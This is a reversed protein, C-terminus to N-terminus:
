RLAICFGRQATLTPTTTSMFSDICRRRWYPIRKRGTDAKPWKEIYDSNEVRMACEGWSPLANGPAPERAPDGLLSRRWNAGEHELALRRILSGVAEDQTDGRAHRRPDGEVHCEWGRGMSEPRSVIGPIDICPLQDPEM